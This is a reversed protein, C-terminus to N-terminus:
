GNGIAKIEREARLIHEVLPRLIGLVEPDTIEPSEVELLKLLFALAREKEPRLAELRRAIEAKREAERVAAEEAERQERAAQERAEQEARAQARRQAEALEALRRQEDLARREADLREQEAQAADEAAKREAAIRAREEAAARDAAAQAEKAIRDAEAKAAELAAREEALKRAEEAQREREAALRTEEAERRQRLIDRCDAERAVVAPHKREEPGISLMNQGSGVVYELKGSEVGALWDDLPMELVVRVKMDLAAAAEAERQAQEEAAKLAAEAEIREREAAERAAKLHAKEADAEAKRESLPDEVEAIAATLEKAASDVRRGYELAGAKLEKRRKEVAVRTTRCEAIAQRGAEYARPSDFTLDKLPALKARLEEVTFQYVVPLDSGSETTETIPDPM